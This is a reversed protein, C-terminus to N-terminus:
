SLHHLLELPLCSYKPHLLLSRLLLVRRGSARRLRSVTGSIDAAFVM